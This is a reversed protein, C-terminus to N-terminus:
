RASRTRTPSSSTSGKMCSTGMAPHAATRETVFDAGYTSTKLLGCVEAVGDGEETDGTRRLPDMTDSPGRRPEPM